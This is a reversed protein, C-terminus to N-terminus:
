KLYVAGDEIHDIQSVPITVNKQGWLHGERMVLHTIGETKADILFEDLRGVRGDTAEVRDGRRMALEDPPISDHTMPLTTEEPSLYPQWLVSGAPYVMWPDGALFDPNPPLYEAATFSQMDALKNRSLRLRVTEPTSEVIFEVPVIVDGGLLGPQHVVVDTVKKTVPNLVIHTIRGGPGDTCQVIANIPIDM